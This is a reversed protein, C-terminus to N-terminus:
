LLWLLLEEAEPGSLAASQQKEGEPFYLTFSFRAIESPMLKLFFPFLSMKIAHSKQILNWLPPLFIATHRTCLSGKRKGKTTSSDISNMYFFPPHSSLYSIGQETGAPWLDWSARAPSALFNSVRDGHTGKQEKGQIQQDTAHQKAQSEM